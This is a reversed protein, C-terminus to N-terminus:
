MKAKSSLIDNSPLMAEMPFYLRHESSEAPAILILDSCSQAVSRTEEIPKEKLFALQAYLVQSAGNVWKAMLAALWAHLRKTSLLSATHCVHASM